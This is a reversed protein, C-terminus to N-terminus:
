FSERGEATEALKKQVLPVPQAVLLDLPCGVFRERLMKAGAKKSLFDEMAM